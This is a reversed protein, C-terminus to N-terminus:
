HKAIWKSAQLSFRWRPHAHVWRMCRQVSARYLQALVEAEDEEFGGRLWSAFEPGPMVPDQPTVYLAVPEVGQSVPKHFAWDEVALLQEDTWGKVMPPSGPLVIRVEDVNTGFDEWPTGMKPSLCVHDVSPVYKNPVTGNTEIAINWHQERLAQILDLDVQLLPEGGTLVCWRHNSGPDAPWQEQMMGLMDETSLVIGSHFDTDCWLACTAAGDERHLSHGDWLNCGTFMVKVVSRGVLSGEGHIVRTIEKVGYRGV